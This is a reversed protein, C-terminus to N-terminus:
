FNTYTEFSVVDIYDIYDIGIESNRTDVVLYKTDVVLYKTDGMVLNKYSIPHFNQNTFPILM